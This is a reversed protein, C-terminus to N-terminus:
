LSKIARGIYQPILSAVVSYESHEASAIEGAIGFVYAGVCSADFLDQKTAIGSILGALVDGSGAKALSANGTINICVRDGDTIVTTSSKLAVIVGYKNAFEKALEISNCIVDDALVNALRSFEKVHPTLLIECKRDKLVDSGFKSLVNLGDADIILKGQYGTIITKLLQYVGESMSAGMGFVVCDLNKIKDLISKDDVLSNGDDKVTSLICELNLGAYIPYLSEPVFLYGYGAGALLASLSSQSLLPAGFFAKSGGIVGAKGYDGKNTNDNRHPFYKAVDKRRLRYAFKEDWVSIGIDCAVVEGSYHKGDNLFHGTKYEQIAITLNAKVCVNMPLGTDSNLGSAIDCAIVFCGKNNIKNIIEALKGEINRNLGTGFICDIIIDVDTDLLSIDDSFVNYCTVAFGHRESLIRAIIKGDEGNNGKGIAVLVRGGKFRKLIAEAVAVGAREILVDEPIGLKEITYKDARRMADSTLIREM